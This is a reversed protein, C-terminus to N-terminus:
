RTNGLKGASWYIEQKALKSKTLLEILKIQAEIYKNERSNILFLSSEGLRFKEKEGKLLQGYQDVAISYISTQETLIVQKNYASKLKNNLELFKQQRALSANQIKLNTLKVDGRQERLFIPFSFELGWQHNNTGINESRFQNSNALLLDYNLNLKPKLAENKLRRDINLNQLKYDYVNMEPHSLMSDSLLKLESRSFSEISEKFEKFEIPHLSDSIELPTNNQYWLYNSVMLTQNKYALLYQQELMRRNQVQLFAELTDIAPKDGLTYSNKIAEFREQALQVSQQYVLYNNWSKVWNWYENLANLFLNNLAISRQQQTLEIMNKAQKVAARRKDIFLGKGIAVSVGAYWMGDEPLNNQPNVFEGTSQNFGARVDIGYWTPVILGTGLLGYYNKEDFQKSKYKATLQPDFNGRARQLEREGQEKIIDAQVVAPHYSKLYFLFQEETFEKPSQGVTIGAALLFITSLLFRM